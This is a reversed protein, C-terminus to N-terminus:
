ATGTCTACFWAHMNRQAALSNYPPTATSGAPPNLSRMRTYAQELLPWNYSPDFASIRRAVNVVPPLQWPTPTKGPAPDYCTDSEDQGLAVSPIGALTPIGLVTIGAAGSMGLFRGRNSRM